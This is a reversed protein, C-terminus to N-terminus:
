GNVWNEVTLGPVRSFEKENNTVLTLSLSRAHAAILLDMAGITQGKRELYARIKGYHQAAQDDFALIQLPALFNLLAERNQRPRSSKAVGYELEAVTISSVGVEEPDLSVLRELVETPRKKIIYICINTDLLYRM